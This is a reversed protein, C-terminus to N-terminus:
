LEKQNCFDVNNEKCVRLVSNAVITYSVSYSEFMVDKYLIMQDKM